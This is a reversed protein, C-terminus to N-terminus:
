GTAKHLVQTLWRWIKRPWNYAGDAILQPLIIDLIPNPQAPMVVAAFSFGAPALGGHAGVLGALLATLINLILTAVPIAEDAFKPNLKLIWGFAYLLAAKGLSGSLFEFFQQLYQVIV